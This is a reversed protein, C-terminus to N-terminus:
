SAVHQQNAKVRMACVTAFVMPYNQIYLLRVGLMAHEVLHFWHSYQEVRYVYMFEVRIARRYCSAPLPSHILNGFYM